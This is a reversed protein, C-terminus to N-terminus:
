SAKNPWNCYVAASFQKTVSGIRFKTTPTNAVNWERDALGFAKRYIPKGKQVVLVAGNFEKVNLEAQMYDDLKTSYDSQSCAFVPLLLLLFINKM